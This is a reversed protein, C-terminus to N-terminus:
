IWPLWVTGQRAGVCACLGRGFAQGLACWYANSYMVADQPWDDVASGPPVLSTWNNTLQRLVTHTIDYVWLGAESAGPVTNGSSIWLVQKRSRDYAVANTTTDLGTNYVDVTQQLVPNLQLIHRTTPYRRIGYIYAGDGLAGAAGGLQLAVLWLAPCLAALIAKRPM